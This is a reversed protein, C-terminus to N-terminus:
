RDRSLVMILHKGDVDQAKLVIPSANDTLYMSVYDSTGPLSELYEAVYRPDVTFVQCDTKPETTWVAAANCRATSEGGTPSKGALNITLEGSEMTFDLDIGRTEETLKRSGAFRMEVSESSEIFPKVSKLFGSPIVYFENARPEGSELVVNGFETVSLRRTDTAVLSLPSTKTESADIGRFNFLVGGLAYRTSEEDAAFDVLSLAALLQVCNLRITFDPAVTEVTPMDRPNGETPVTLKAGDAHITLETQTLCCVVDKAKTAKLVSLLTNCNVLETREGDRGFDDATAIESDCNAAFFDVSGNVSVKVNKLVSLGFPTRRPVFAAVQKLRNVLVRRNVAFEAVPTEAHKFEVPEDSYWEIMPFPDATDDAVIPTEGYAPIMPFPDVPMMVTFNSM